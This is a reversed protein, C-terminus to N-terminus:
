VGRGVFGPARLGRIMDCARRSRKDGTGSGREASSRRSKGSSGSSGGSGGGGMGSFVFTAMATPTMMANTSTVIAMETNTM